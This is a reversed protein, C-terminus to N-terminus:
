NNKEKLLHFPHYHIRGEAIFIGAFVFIAGLLYYFTITENLLPIAVLATAIPDVYTFIGIESVKITKLGFAYLLHAAVAALIIGYGIGIIGKNTFISSLNTNNIEIAVAPLLCLSGIFFSWFIVTFPSYKKIFTKVIVTSTSDSLIAMILFLNGLIAGTFGHEFIPRIIILFVGILSIATGMFVKSKPKEKLFFIAFLLLLIPSSSFIIPANISPALRLGLFLFSIALTIGIFSSAIIKPIDEKDIKLNKVAFPFIIIAGLFFRLFVFTFPPVDSLTWKYIPFSAGWIINATILALIALQRKSLHM